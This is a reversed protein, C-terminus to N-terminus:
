NNFEIQVVWEQGHGYVYVDEMWVYETERVGIQVTKIYAFHKLTKPANSQIAEM